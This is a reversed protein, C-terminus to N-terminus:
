LEEGKIWKHQRNYYLYGHSVNDAYASIQNPQWKYQM